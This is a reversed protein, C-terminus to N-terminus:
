GTTIRENEIEELLNMSHLLFGRSAIDLSERKHVAFSYVAYFLGYEIIDISAAGFKRGHRRSKVLTIIDPDTHLTVSLYVLVAM